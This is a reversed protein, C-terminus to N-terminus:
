YSGWPKYWHLTQMLFCPFLFSCEKASPLTLLNSVEGLYVLGTDVLLPLSLQVGKNFHCLTMLNSFKGSAYVLAIDVSAPSSLAENGQQPSLTNSM